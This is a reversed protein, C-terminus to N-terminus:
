DVSSLANMRSSTVADQGDELLRKVIAEATRDDCRGAVHKPRRDFTCSRTTCSTASWSSGSTVSERTACTPSRPGPLHSCTHRPTIPSSGTSSRARPCPKWTGVNAPSIDTEIWAGIRDIHDLEAYLADETFLLPVNVAPLTQLDIATLPLIDNRGFSAPLDGVQGHLSPSPLAVALAAVVVLFRTKSDM